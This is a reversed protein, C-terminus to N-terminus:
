NMLYISHERKLAKKTSLMFTFVMKLRVSELTRESSQAHPIDLSNIRRVSKEWYEERILFDIESTTEM